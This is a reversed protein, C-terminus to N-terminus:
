AWTELRLEEIGTFHKTNASVLTADWAIAHAAIAIDFDEILRGARELKAKVWGFCDSM